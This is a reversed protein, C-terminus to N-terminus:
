SPSRKCPMCSTTPEIGIPDVMVPKGARFKEIFAYPLGKEPKRFKKGMELTIGQPFVFDQIVQKVPLGAQEWITAPHLLVGKVSAIVEQFDDKGLLLNQALFQLNTKRTSLEEIQDSIVKKVTKSEIDAM